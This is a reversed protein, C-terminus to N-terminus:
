PLPRLACSGNTRPGHEILTVIARDTNVTLAYRDEGSQFHVSLAALIASCQVFAGHEAGGRLSDSSEVPASVFEIAVLGIRLSYARYNYTTPVVYLPVVVQGQSPVAPRRRQQADGVPGGGAMNARLPMSPNTTGSTFGPCDQVIM